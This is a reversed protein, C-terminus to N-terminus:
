AYRVPIKLIVETGGSRGNPLSLDNITIHANENENQGLMAMRDATLQMGMSKHASASRSKLAMAKERGVGDDTIICYLVADAQTLQIELHGKEKKHMLGHWIANEVYPQIILPPVQIMSSDLDEEVMVNFDFADDFRLAELELYLNLAELESELPILAHQSNQLILRVLRSFKVLYESAQAKENRLIFDNIANLSNFIFHPNMQARLAQMQLEAKAKESELKQVELEHELRQRENRRKLALIRFTFVGLLLLVAVGAILVNRHFSGEKLKAEQIQREKNLLAIKQTFGYAAFRGKAQDNLVTEKMAIHRRFYRNASDAQQRRDYVTALIEYGDRINRKSGTQLALYLGERGYRLAEGNNNLALYTKGMDLLTRMVENRDNLKRHEALGLQFHQLAQTYKKQLFYCEGTSVWWVRLYLAKGSDPKFRNYYHWASDFRGLHSFVETFEMKFWIDNDTAIRERRIEDDDMQLVRRFYGLANPYDEILEYLQAMGYLSSSIGIKSRAKLAVTYRQQAYSFSKEYDGSTRNLSEMWSLAEMIGQEDGAQKAFAYNIKAYHIGEDFKSQALLAYILYYYLDGLGAKNATQSYWNLSQKCLAESKIFDDDFHKAIQSQCSLSVAMGHGYGLAKAEAYALRAYYNASDKKEATIYHYGLQNLRDIRASDQLPRLASKLSAADQPQAVGTLFFLVALFLLCANKPQASHWSCSM